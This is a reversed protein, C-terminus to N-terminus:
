STMTLEQALRQLYFSRVDSPLQRFNKTIGAVDRRAKEYAELDRNGYVDRGASYGRKLNKFFVNVAISENSIPRATHLWLPPLYLIDGPGLTAEHPATGGLSPSSTALASFIDLSSSSAGPEFGLRNVDSPPFLIMRKSGIVQCYVNAM